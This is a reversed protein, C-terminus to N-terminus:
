QDEARVLVKGVVMSLFGKLRHAGRMGQHERRWSLGGKQAGRSKTMLRKM